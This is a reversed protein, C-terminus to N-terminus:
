KRRGQKAVLSRAEGCLWIPPGVDAEDTGKEAIIHEIQKAVTRNSSLTTLGTAWGYLFVSKNIPSLEAAVAEAVPPLRAGEVEKKVVKIPLQWGEPVQYKSLQCWEKLLGDRSKKGDEGLLIQARAKETDTGITAVIEKMQVAAETTCVMPHSGMTPYLQTPLLRDEAEAKIQSRVARPFWDQIPVDSHSIDSIIALLITCDINLTESLNRSRDVLLKPLVSELPPAPELDDTCQVTAGTARIKNLLNDIERIRGSKIRPLVFIIQPHKGMTRNAAAARALDRANKVLPVEDEDDSDITKEQRDEANKEGDDDDDSFGDNQWGLKALDFLIRKESVTSVKTWELGDCSVIDVLAASKPGSARRNMKINAPSGQNAGQNHHSAKNFFFNKRFYLLGSTRKAAAWLAEFFLLNSSVLYQYAKEESGDMESLKELFSLESRIDNRLARYEVAREGKSLKREHLAGVWQEVEALLEKCRRVLDQATAQFAAVKEKQSETTTSLQDDDPGQNDQHLQLSKLYIELSKQQAEPTTIAFANLQSEAM